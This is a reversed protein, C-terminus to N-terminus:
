AAWWGSKVGRPRAVLGAREAQSLYYRVTRPPWGLLDAVLATRVPVGAGRQVDVLVDLVRVAAPTM